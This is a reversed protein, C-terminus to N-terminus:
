MEGNTVFVSDGLLTYLAGKIIESKPFNDPDKNLVHDILAPDNIFYSKFFPLRFEAMWARYLKAPQSAFIDKRVLRIHTLISVREARAEPKPPTFDKSM